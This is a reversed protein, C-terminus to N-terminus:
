PLRPPHFLSWTCVLSFSDRLKPSKIEVIKPSPLLTLALLCPSLRFLVLSTTSHSNSPISLKATATRKPFQRKKRRGVHDKRRQSREERQDSHRKERGKKASKSAKEFDLM